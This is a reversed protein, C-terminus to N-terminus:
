GDNRVQLSPLDLFPVNKLYDMLDEVPYDKAYRGFTEGSHAHGMLQIIVPEPLKAKALTTAFTHRFSYLVHKKTKLDKKILRHRVFWKSVAGGYGNATQGLNPWLQHDKRIRREEVYEGFGAEILKPHIPVPRTGNGSKITKGDLGEENLDLWWVDGSRQVDEVLLQGIEGPRAGTFYMLHPIWFHSPQPTADISYDEGFIVRLQDDTFSDRVDKARQKGHSNSSIQSLPNVGIFDHAEAWAFFTRAASIYKEHITKSTLRSGGKEKNQQAMERLDGDLKTFDKPLWSLVEFYGTGMKKSVTSVDIDGFYRKMVELKQRAERQSKPKWDGSTIKFNIFEDVAEFLKVGAEPAAEIVQKPIAEAGWLAGYDGLLAKQNAQALQIQGFLLQRCMLKYNFSQRDIELGEQNLLRDAVKQASTLQGLSLAEKLDHEEEKSLELQEELYEERDGGIVFPDVLAEELMEYRVKLYKKILTEVHERTLREKPM